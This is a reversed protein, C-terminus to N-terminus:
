TRRSIAGAPRGTAPSRNASHSRHVPLGGDHARRDRRQVLAWCQYYWDDTYDLEDDGAYGTERGVEVFTGDRQNSWQENWMRGYAMSLIEPWGDGDLDCATAGMSPRAHGGDLVDNINANSWSTLENRELGASATVDEFTGDGIGRLASRERRLDLQALGTATSTRTSTGSPSSCISRGTTISTRSPRARCRSRPRSRTRRRALTFHGTGDNLLIESPDTFQAEPATHPDNYVGAFADPDGDGDLDAFIHDVSPRGGEGSRRQFFGSEETADVFMRGGDERERNMLLAHYRTGGAFDDVGANDSMVLDAYGDLDLDVAVIQAGNQSALGVEETADVYRLAPAVYPEDPESDDKTCAFLALFYLM